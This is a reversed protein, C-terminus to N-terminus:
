GAESTMREEEEEEEEEARFRCCKFESPRKKRKKEEVRTWSKQPCSVLLLFHQFPKKVFDHRHAPPRLEAPPKWGRGTNGEGRQNAEGTFVKHTNAGGGVM